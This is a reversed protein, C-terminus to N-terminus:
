FRWDMGVLPFLGIQKNVQTQNSSRNWIYSTTLLALWRTM